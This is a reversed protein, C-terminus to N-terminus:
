RRHSLPFLGAPKEDGGDGRPAPSEPAHPDAHVPPDVVLGAAIAIRVADATGRAGIREMMQSRYAEVTRISLRLEWAIIKNPLGRLIGQLVQRQRATLAAVANSAATRAGEQALRSELAKRITELLAEPAYPKEVFDRAGLQIAGVAVAIDGHATIVVVPPSEGRAALARLVAFGDSGPMQLDLLICSFSESGSAALFDDGSKFVKVDFGARTLVSSTSLRIAEDDDVIAIFVRSM